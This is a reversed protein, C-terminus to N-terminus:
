YFSKQVEDGRKISDAVTCNHSRAVTSSYEERAESKLCRPKLMFLHLRTGPESAHRQGRDERGRVDCSITKMLGRRM